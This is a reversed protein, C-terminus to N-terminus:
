IIMLDRLMPIMWIMGYLKCINIKKRKPVSMLMIAMGMINMVSFVVQSIKSSKDREIEVKNAQTKNNPVTKKNNSPSADNSLNKM